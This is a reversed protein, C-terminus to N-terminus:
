LESVLNQLFAESSKPLTEGVDKFRTAGQAYLRKLKREDGLTQLAHLGLAFAQFDYPEMCQWLDALRLTEAPNCELGGM